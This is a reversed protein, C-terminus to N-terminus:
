SARPAAHACGSRELEEDSGGGAGWDVNGILDDTNASSESAGGLVAFEEDDSCTTLRQM